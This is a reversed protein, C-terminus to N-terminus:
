AQCPPHLGDARFPLRFYCLLFLCFGINLRTGDLQPGFVYPSQNEGYVKNYKLIDPRYFGNLYWLLLDGPHNQNNSAKQLLVDMEPQLVNRIDALKDSFIM